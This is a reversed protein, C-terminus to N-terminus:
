FPGVPRQSARDDDGARMTGTQVQHMHNIVILWVPDDIVVCSIGSLQKCVAGARQFLHVAHGAARLNQQVVGQRQCDLRGGFCPWAQKHDTRM